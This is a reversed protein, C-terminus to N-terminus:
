RKSDDDKHNKILETVQIFASITMLITLSISMASFVLMFVKVDLWRLVFDLFILLTSM